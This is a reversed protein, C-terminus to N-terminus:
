QNDECLNNEFLSIRVDCTEEYIERCHKPVRHVVAPNVWLQCHNHNNYPVTIVMCNRYDTYHYYATFRQTQDNDVFYTVQDPIDSGEIDFTVNRAPKDGRAKLHWVYTAKKELPNYRTLTATMCKFSTDNTSSSIAVMRRFANFMRFSDTPDRRRHGAIHATVLGALLMCAALNFWGM